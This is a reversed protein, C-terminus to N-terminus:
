WGKVNSGSFDMFIRQIMEVRCFNGGMEGGGVQHLLGLRRKAIAEALDQDRVKPTYNLSVVQVPKALLYFGYSEMPHSSQGM